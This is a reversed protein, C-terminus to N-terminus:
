IVVPRNLSAEVLAGAGSAAVRNRACSRDTAVAAVFRATADFKLPTFANAIAAGACVHYSGDASDFPAVTVESGSVGGTVLVGIADDGTATCKIVNGASVKVAKGKDASLDEGATMRIPGAPRIPGTTTIEPM